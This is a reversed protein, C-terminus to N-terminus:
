GLNPVYRITPDLADEYFDPPIVSQAGTGLFTLSAITLLLTRYM